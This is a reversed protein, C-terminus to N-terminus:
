SWAEGAPPDEGAAADGHESAHLGSWQSLADVDAATALWRQVPGPSARVAEAAEAAAEASMRQRQVPTMATASDTVEVVV